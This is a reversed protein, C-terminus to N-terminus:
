ICKAAYECTSGAKSLSIAGKATAQYLLKQFRIPSEKGNYEGSEKKRYGNKRLWINFDRYSHESILDLVKARAMIAQVSFGYYEEIIILEELSVNNRRGGFEKLFPEKPLLFAGAFNHCLKEKEKENFTDDSFELILDALEHLTTFRKRVIGMTKNISILLIYSIKKYYM